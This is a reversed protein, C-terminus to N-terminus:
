YFTNVNGKSVPILYVVKLNTDARRGYPNEFEQYVPRGIVVHFTTSTACIDAGKIIDVTKVVTFIWLTIHNIVDPPRTYQYSGILRCSTFWFM